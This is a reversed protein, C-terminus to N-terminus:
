MKESVTTVRRNGGRWPLELPSRPAAQSHGGSSDPHGGDQAAVAGGQGRRRRHRRLQRPAAGVATRRAKDRVVFQGLEGDGM